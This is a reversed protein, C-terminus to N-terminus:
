FVKGNVEALPGMPVGRLAFQDSNGEHGIPMPLRSEIDAATFALLGSPKLRSAVGDTRNVGFLAKVAAKDHVGVLPQTKGIFAKVENPTTFHNFMEVVWGKETVLSQTNKFGAAFKHEGCGVAGKPQIREHAEEAL